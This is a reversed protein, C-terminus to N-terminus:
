YEYRIAKYPKALEHMKKIAREKSCYSIGYQQWFATAGSKTPITPIAVLVVYKNNVCEVRLKTTGSIEAIVEHKM